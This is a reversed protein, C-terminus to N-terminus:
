LLVAAVDTLRTERKAADGMLRPALCLSFRHQAALRGALRNEGRRSVDHQAVGLAEPVVRELDVQRAPCDDARERLRRAARRLRLGAFLDRSCPLPEKCGCRWMGRRRCRAAYRLRWI